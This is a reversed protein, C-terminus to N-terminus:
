ETTAEQVVALRLRMLTATLGGLERLAADIDAVAPADHIAYLREHLVDAITPLPAALEAPTPASLQEYLRAAASM